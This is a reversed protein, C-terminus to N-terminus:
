TEKFKSLKENLGIKSGTWALAIRKEVFIDLDYVLSIAFIPFESNEACFLKHGPSLVWHSMKFTGLDAKEATCHGWGWAKDPAELQCWELLNLIEFTM